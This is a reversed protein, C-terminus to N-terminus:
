PLPWCGPVPPMSPTVVFATPNSTRFAQAEAWVRKVFDKGSTFTDPDIGHKIGAYVRSLSGNYGAYTARELLDGSAISMLIKRNQDLLAVAAQAQFLPDGSKPNAILDEHYIKDFQFFGFAHGSDGWGVPSGDRPVYGPAWGYWSEVYGLSIVRFPDDGTGQTAQQITSVWPLMRSVPTGPDTAM